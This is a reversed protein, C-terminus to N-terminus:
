SISHELSKIFSDFTLLKKGLKGFKLTYTSKPNM